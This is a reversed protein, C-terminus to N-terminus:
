ATDVTPGVGYHKFTRTAAPDRESPTQLIPRDFAGGAEAKEAETPEAKTDSKAAPSAVSGESKEADCAPAAACVVVLVVSIPMRRSLLAAKM